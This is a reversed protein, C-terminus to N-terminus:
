LRTQQTVSTKLRFERRQPKLIQFWFGKLCTPNDSSRHAPTRLPSLQLLESCSKTSVFLQFRSSCVLLCRHGCCPKRLIPLKLPAPRYKIMFILAFFLVSPKKRIGVAKRLHCPRAAFLSCWVTVLPHWQYHLFRIPGRQIHRNM